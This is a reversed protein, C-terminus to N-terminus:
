AAVSVIGAIDSLLDSSEQLNGATENLESARDSDSQAAIKQFVVSAEALNGAVARLDYDTTQSPDVPAPDVPQPDVPPDVPADPAPVPAEIKDATADPYHVQVTPVFTGGDSALFVIQNTFTGTTPTSASFVPGNLPGMDVVSMGFANTPPKGDFSHNLLQAGNFGIMYWHGNPQQQCAVFPAHGKWALPFQQAHSGPVVVGVMNMAAAVGPDTPGPQPDHTPTRALGPPFGYSGWPDVGFPSFGIQPRIFHGRAAFVRGDGTSVAVHHEGGIPGLFCWAGPTHLAEDRTMTTHSARCWAALSAATEYNGHPSPGVVHHYAYAQLGSCDEEHPPQDPNARNAGANYHIGPIQLTAYQIALFRDVQTTM